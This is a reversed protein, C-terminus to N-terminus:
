DQECQVGGDECRIGIEGLSISLVVMRVLRPSFEAHVDVGDDRVFGNACGTVRLDVGPLAVAFWTFPAARGGLKFRRGLWYLASGGLDRVVGIAVVFAFTCGGAEGLVVARSCGSSLGDCWGL